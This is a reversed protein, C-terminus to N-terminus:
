QGVKLAELLSAIESASEHGPAVGVLSVSPRSCEYRHVSDITNWSLEARSYEEVQNLFAKVDLSATLLDDASFDKPSNLRRAGQAETLHDYLPLLEYLDRWVENAHQAIAALFRERLYTQKARHNSWDFEGYCIKAM